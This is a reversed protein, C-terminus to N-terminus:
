RSQSSAESTHNDALPQIPQYLRPQRSPSNQVGLPEVSILLTRGIVYGFVYEVTQGANVAVVGQKVGMKIRLMLVLTSYLSFSTTTRPEPLCGRGSRCDCAHLEDGDNSEKGSWESGAGCTDRPVRYVVIGRLREGHNRARISGVAHYALPVM